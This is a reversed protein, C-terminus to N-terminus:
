GGFIDIFKAREAEDAAVAADADLPMLKIESLSPMGVPAAVGELVPIYGQSAALEQGEKSLIFAVFAKAAEVKETGKVIAVPEAFYSAGEEPYVFEVPSGARKARLVDADINIAYKMQGGAVSKLVPGNGGEPAIDLEALREYYAWGLKEDQLVSHMHVLAAGSYLPSPAAIQGANEDVLLEAYSSVPKANQTNYVIGNASLKTGFFTFDKDYVQPDIGEVPAEPWALLTGDRKLMGLNIPDAILLVDAKIGGAEREASMINMLQSTGNRTWEVKIDPHKAQFADVTQQAIEPSQSTYLMLTTEAHLASSGLLLAFVTSTILRM